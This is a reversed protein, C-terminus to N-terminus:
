GEPTPEPEEPNPEPEAGAQVFRYEYERGASSFILTFTYEEAEPNPTATVVMPIGEGMDAAGESINMSVRGADADTSASWPSRSLVSLVTEGGAAPIAIIDTEPDMTESTALLDLGAQVVAITDARSAFATNVPRIVITDRREDLSRIQTASVTLINEEGRGGQEITLWDSAYLLLFEWGSPLDTTVTLTRIMDDRAGFPELVPPSVDFLPNMALQRFPIILQLGDGSIITVSDTRDDPNENVSASILLRSPNEADYDLSLWEAPESNDFVWPSSSGITVALVEKKMDAAMEVSTPDAHLFKDAPACGAIGAAAVIVASGLIGSLFTKM